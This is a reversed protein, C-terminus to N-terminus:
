RGLSKGSLPSKRRRDPLGRSDVGFRRFGQQYFDSVDNLIRDLRAAHDPLPDRDAPVFYVVRLMRHSDAQGAHYTSVQKVAEGLLASGASDEGVATLTSAILGFLFSIPKWPICCQNIQPCPNPKQHFDFAAPVPPFRYSWDADPQKLDLVRPPLAPDANIPPRLEPM